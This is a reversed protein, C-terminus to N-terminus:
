KTAFASAQAAPANLPSFSTSPPRRAAYISRSSHNGSAWESQAERCTTLRKRKRKATNGADDGCHEVTRPAELLQHAIEIADSLRGLSGKASQQFRMATQSLDLCRCRQRANSSLLRDIRGKALWSPWGCFGGLGCHQRGYQSARRLPRFRAKVASPKRM